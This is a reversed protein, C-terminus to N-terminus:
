HRLSKKPLVKKSFCLRGHQCLSQLLKGDQMLFFVLIRLYSIKILYKLAFKCGEDNKLDLIDEEDESSESKQDAM